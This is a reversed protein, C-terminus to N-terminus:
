KDKGFADPRQGIGLGAKRAELILAEADALSPFHAEHVGGDVGQRCVFRYAHLKRGDGHLVEAYQLAFHWSDESQGPNIVENLVTVTM